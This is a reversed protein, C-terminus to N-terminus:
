RYYIFRGCNPCTKVGGRGSVLGSPISAFCGGCFGKNLVPVVVSNKYKKRMIEYQELLHKDLKAIISKREQELLDRYNEKLKFGIKNYASKLDESELEDLAIDIQQLKILSVLVDNM